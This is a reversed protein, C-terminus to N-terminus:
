RSERDLKTLHAELESKTAFGQGRRFCALKQNVGAWSTEYVDAVIRGFTVSEM